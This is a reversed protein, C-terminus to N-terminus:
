FDSKSNAPPIDKYIEFLINLVFEAFSDMLIEASFPDKIFEKTRNKLDMKAIFFIKEEPDRIIVFDVGDSKYIVETGNELFLIVQTVIAKKINTIEEM